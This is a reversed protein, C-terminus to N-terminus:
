KRITSTIHGACSFKLLLQLYLGALAHRHDM